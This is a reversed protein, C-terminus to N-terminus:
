SAESARSRSSKSPSRKKDPAKKGTRAKAKPKPKSSPKTKPKPKREPEEQEPEEQEPEPEPEGQEAAAGELAQAGRRLAESLADIRATAAAMVASRGSELLDGRVQDSLAGFRPHERLRRGGEEALHRPTLPFRRGIVYTAIAFAVKAKRTRGLVYGGAIGAALAAKSNDM